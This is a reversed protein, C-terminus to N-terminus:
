PAGAADSDDTFSDRDRCVGGAVEGQRQSFKPSETANGPPIVLNREHNVALATNTAGVARELDATGHITGRQRDLNPDFKRDRHRASPQVEALCRSSKLFEVNRFEVWITCELPTGSEESSARHDIFLEAVLRLGGLPLLAGLNSGFRETLGIRIPFHELDIINVLRAVVLQELVVGFGRNRRM